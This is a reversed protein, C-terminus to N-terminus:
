ESELLVSNLSTSSLLTSSLLTSSQAALRWRGRGGDEIPSIVGQGGYRADESSWAVEWRKGRPPAILPEAISDLWLERDLNVILLRDNGEDTLWRLVFARESLTAGDLDFSEPHAFVDDTRRLHLLDRHFALDHAHTRAEDWDLKSSEFTAAASPDPIMAQVAEDAYARFQSIFKQRGGHVVKRLDENHDAFFMFRSSAAFEQGMFLLPTQPGLLLLAALARYMQPATREHIRDGVFHNAVQDHNDIFVICASAPVNRLPSGRAQNQWGYRQGQFLFGYKAASVFEQARGTYDRMYGDRSGRLAVSAAHHFDDNWMADIGFGGAVLPLLHESCQPENEATVVIQRAGAAERAHTVLEALIHPESADFISQTADLRFGDLHFERIWYRVNQLVYDRAGNAHEDDFNLAEGWETKHRKSFYHPSFCPLYNGDPGLHNYVVDLIVGLGLAHARDVFRKFADYEGYVHYPAFLQVGDYGWNWRGPCESVPMVEILTIGLDRLHQLRESAAEFTGETTFTGIHLEYIAQGRMTVGRWAHDTWSFADSDVVMSPGHVGCPQYRSCPDPWPGREDIRYRYLTGPPAQTSLGAFYGREEVELRLAQGSADFVVEVLEAEPAWVRFLTKGHSYQAGITAGSQTGSFM